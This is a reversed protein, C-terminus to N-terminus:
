PVARSKAPERVPKSQARLWIRRALTKFNPLGLDDCIASLYLFWFLFRIQNGGYWALMGQIRDVRSGGLLTVALNKLEPQSLDILWHCLMQPYSFQSVYYITFASVIAGFANGVFLGFWNDALRSGVLLMADITGRESRHYARLRALMRVSFLMGFVLVFRHDKLSAWGNQMFSSTVDAEPKTPLIAPASPIMDHWLGSVLGLALSGLLLVVFTSVFTQFATEWVM